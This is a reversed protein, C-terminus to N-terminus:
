FMCLYTVAHIVAYTSICHFAYNRDDELELAKCGMDFMYCDGSESDELLYFCDGCCYVTYIYIHIYIYIYQIHLAMKWNLMSSNVCPFSKGVQAPCM